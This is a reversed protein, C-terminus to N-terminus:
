PALHVPPLVEPPDGGDAVPSIPAVKELGAVVDEIFAGDMADVSPAKEAELKAADRRRYLQPHKERIAMLEALFDIPKEKLTQAKLKNEDVRVQTNLIIQAAAIQDKRLATDEPACPALLIEELKYLSLHVLAELRTGLHPADARTLEAIPKTAAREEATAQKTLPTAATLLKSRPLRGDDRSM